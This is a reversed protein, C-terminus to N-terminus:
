ADKAPSLPAPAASKPAPTVDVYYDQGAELGEIARKNYVNMDFTASPTYKGFMANEESLEPSVPRFELYWSVPQSRDNTETEKISHLTFKCRM